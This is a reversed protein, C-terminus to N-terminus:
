GAQMQWFSLLATVQLDQDAGPLRFALCCRCFVFGQRQAAHWELDLREQCPSGSARVQQSLSCSLAVADRLIKQDQVASKGKEVASNNMRDASAALQTIIVNLREDLLQLPKSWTSQLLPMGPQCVSVLLASALFMAAAQVQRRQMLVLQSLKLKLLFCQVDLELLISGLGGDPGLADPHPVWACM